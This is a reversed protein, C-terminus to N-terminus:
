CIDEARGPGGTREAQAAHGPRPITPFEHSEILQTSFRWLQVADVPVNADLGAKQWLHRLFTTGDWGHEVPVEPLLLGLHGAHRVLLGHRGIEIQELTGVPENPSLVSINFSLRTLEDPRVPDFRTDHRPARRACREVVEALPIEPEIEGLCGRLQGAVYVTVFAGRPEALGPHTKLAHAIDQRTPGQTHQVAAELASWTLRVLAEQAARDLREEAM